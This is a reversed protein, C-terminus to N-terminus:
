SGASVTITAASGTFTPQSVSGSPTYSGTASVTADAIAAEVSGSPTFTGAVNITESAVAGTLRTGSGSFTPQTVTGSPTFTSALSTLSGNFTADISGSPTYPGTFTSDSGSFTASILVTDGTFAPATASATASTMFTKAESAFAPLTGASFATSASIRSFVLEESEAGIAVDLLDNNLSPLTGVSVIPTITDTSANITVTPASVTGTPTYNGTLSKVIEAMQIIGNPVGSVSVNGKSGTFTATINGEPTYSISINGPEGNFEPKSVTGEPTYTATGSGGSIVVTQGATSGSATVDGVSGTFTATIESDTLTGSVSVTGESGTFTPQSVTGQPTYPGSATDVYALEGLMDVIASLDGFEHWYEGDFIYEKNGHIVINGKEATYTEGNIIIDAGTEGEVIDTTTVGIFESYNALEEIKERAERDKFYYTQGSPLTVKSLVPTYKDWDM